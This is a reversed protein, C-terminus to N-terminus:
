RRVAVVLRAVYLQHHRPGHSRVWPLGDEEAVVRLGADALAHDLAGDDRTGLAPDPTSLVLRGAPLLARAAEALFAAPDPLVDIVNAAVLTGVSRDRLPLAGADAVVPAADPDECAALLARLSTDLAWRPGSLRRTVTGAGCGVEVLPGEGVQAAVREPLAARVGLVARVLEASPGDVVEVPGEEDALFDRADGEPEAGRVSGAFAALLDADGDTWLGGEVLAAIVADRRAALFRAPEPVLVPVGGLVPWAGADNRLLAGDARLARRTVPDALPSRSVAAAGVRHSRRAGGVPRGAVGQGGVRGGGAGGRPVM